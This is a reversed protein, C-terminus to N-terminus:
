NLNDYFLLINYYSHNKSKGVEIGNKESIYKIRSDAFHERCFPCELIDFCMKILCNECMIHRCYGCLIKSNCEKFEDNCIRCKEYYNFENDKFYAKADDVPNSSKLEIFFPYKKNDKFIPEELVPGEYKSQGKLPNMKYEEFLQKRKEPSIYTVKYVSLNYGNYMELNHKIILFLCVGLFLLLIGLSIGIIIYSKEPM